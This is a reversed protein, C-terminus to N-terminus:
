QKALERDEKRRAYIDDVFKEFEEDSGWLDAGKGLIDELRTPKTGQEAALEEISKRDSFCAAPRGDIVSRTDGQSARNRNNAGAIKSRRNVSAKPM